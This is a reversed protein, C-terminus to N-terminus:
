SDLVTRRFFVFRANFPRTGVAVLHNIRGERMQVLRPGIIPRNAGTRTVWLVLAGPETPGGQQEGKRLGPVTPTAEAAGTNIPAAVFLDLAGLRAAHQMIGFTSFGDDEIWALAERDDFVLLAPAHNRYSAVVTLRDGGDLILRKKAVLAGKCNGPAASRIALRYSGADLAVPLHHGYRFVKKIENGSVCVEVRAGPIGHVVVLKAPGSIASAPAAISGIALAAVAAGMIMKKFSSM